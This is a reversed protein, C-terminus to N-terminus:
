SYRTHTTSYLFHRQSQDQEPGGVARASRASPPRRRSAARAPGPHPQLAHGPFRGAAERDLHHLPGPRAAPRPRRPHDGQVAVSPADASGAAPALPPWARRPASSSSNASSSRSRPSSMSSSGVVLIPPTWTKTCRTSASAASVCSPSWTSSTRSAAATATSRPSSLRTARPVRPVGEARPPARGERVEQGRLDEPVRRRYARRAAAGTEARRDVGPRVRNQDRHARAARRRVRGRRGSAESQDDLRHIM